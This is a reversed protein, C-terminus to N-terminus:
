ADKYELFNHYYFVFFGRDLHSFYTLRSKYIYSCCTTGVEYSFYDFYGIGLLASRIAELRSALASYASDYSSFTVNYYLLSSLAESFSGLYPRNYNCYATYSNGDESLFVGFDYLNPTYAVRDYPYKSVDLYTDCNTFLSIM